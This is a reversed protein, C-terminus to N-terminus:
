SLAERLARLMVRGTEAWSFSRAHALGRTVLEDRRRDAEEIGAAIAAPSEPDVRVAAGGCAEDLSPHASAVVPVGCAMAEIVPIGFGEFLSPYVFVDAGRYLPPLDEDAVYGPLLIGPDDLDPREGWGGGGALVLRREGGLLRWADVLGGLNKRPELTGVGLVYPADVDRGSGDPVYRPDLGPYAVVLHEEDLGLTRAADAATYSSNAFVLDCRRAAEDKRRHMAITRPTCWEPHHHPVLDHITTARLGGRQPPSMWDTFILADFRGILWEAPPFGVMSWATRAAHSAPLPWLRSRVPLGALRARIREPGKLSTPAFPVIEDIEGAAAVLGALTGRIYNGIGTPPHSLPSVDFAVRM